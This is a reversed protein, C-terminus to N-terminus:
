PVPLTSIHGPPLQQAFATLLISTGAYDGMLGVWDVLQRRGFLNLATAFTAASVDHKGVAERSLEILAAEKDTLGTLPKRLRVVDIIAPTLGVKLGNTEHADWEFRSNTERAVTLVVLEVLRPDLGAGFRLYQNSVRTSAALPPSWLRLGGPGQLGALSTGTAVDDYMKKGADDLDDRKVLPLRDRSDPYVDSPLAAPADAARAQHNGLAYGMLGTVLMACLAFTVRITTM